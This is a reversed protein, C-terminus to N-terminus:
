AFSDPWRVGQDIWARLVAVDETKFRAGSPPMVIKGTGAVLQILRSEASHGPLLVPGSDGGAMAASRSDLRLGSMSQKASHCPQCRALLPSVDRVFDIDRTVPSPLNKARVEEAWCPWIALVLVSARLIRSM